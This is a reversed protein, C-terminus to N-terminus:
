PPPLALVQLRRIDRSALSLPRTRSCIFAELLDLPATPLARITHAYVLYSRGRVFNGVSCDTALDLRVTSQNPGKFKRLVQFEVAAPSRDRAGSPSSASPCGELRYELRMVRGSVM